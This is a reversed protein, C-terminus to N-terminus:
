VRIPATVTVLEEQNGTIIVPEMKGEALQLTILESKFTKLTDKLYTINLVIMHDVKTKTGEVIANSIKSTEKNDIVMHMFIKDNTLELYIKEHTHKNINLLDITELLKKRDFTAKHVINKTIVRNYDIIDDANRKTKITIRDNPIGDVHTYFNLTGGDFQITSYRGGKIKLISECVEFPINFDVDYDLGYETDFPEKETEVVQLRDKALRTGSTGIFYISNKIARMGVGLVYDRGHIDKKARFNITTKIANQLETTSVLYEKKINDMKITSPANDFVDTEIEISRLQSRDIYCETKDVKNIQNETIKLLNGNMEFNINPAKKLLTVANKLMKFDVSCKLEYDSPKAYPINVDISYKGKGTRFLIDNKNTLIAIKDWKLMSKEKHVAKTFIDLTNILKKTNITIM